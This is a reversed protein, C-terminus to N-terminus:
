FSFVYGKLIRQLIGIQFTSVEIIHFVAFDVVAAVGGFLGQIGIVTAACQVVVELCAVIGGHM